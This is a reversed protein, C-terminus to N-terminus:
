GSLVPYRHVRGEHGHLDAEDEHQKAIEAHRDREKMDGKRAANAAEKHHHAALKSEEAAMKFSEEADKGKTHPLPPLPKDKIKGAKLDKAQQHYDEWHSAWLENGLAKQEHRKAIEESM